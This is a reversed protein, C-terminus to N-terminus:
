VSPFLAYGATTLQIAADSQGLIGRARAELTMARARSRDYSEKRKAEQRGSDSAFKDDKYNAQVLQELHLAYDLASQAGAADGQRLMAASVTELFQINDPERTLVSRGYRIIRADDAMEIATKL